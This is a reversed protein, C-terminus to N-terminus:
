YGQSCQDLLYARAQRESNAAEYPVGLCWNFHNNYNFGWRGGSLRYACNPIQHARNVQNMAIRAYNACFNPDAARADGAMLTAIM